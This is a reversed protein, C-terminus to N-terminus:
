EETIEELDDGTAGCIPCVPEEGDAVEFEEDCLICKYKKM